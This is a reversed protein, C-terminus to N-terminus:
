RDDDVSPRVISLVAVGIGVFYTFAMWATSTLVPTSAPIVLVARALEPEVDLAAVRLERLESHGPM